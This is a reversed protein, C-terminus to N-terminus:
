SRGPERQCGGSTPMKELGTRPTENKKLNPNKKKKAVRKKHSHAKESTRPLDCAKGSTRPRKIPSRARGGAKKLPEKKKKIRAVQGKRAKVFNETISVRERRGGQYGKKKGGSFHDGHRKGLSKLRRKIRERKGWPNNQFDM